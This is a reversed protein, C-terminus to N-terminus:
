SQVRGGEGSTDGEEPLKIGWRRLWSGNGGVKAKSEDKGLETPARLLGSGDQGDGAMSGGEEVEHGSPAAEPSREPKPSDGRVTQSDPSNPGQEGISDYRYGYLPAGLAVVRKGMEVIKEPDTHSQCKLPSIHRDRCEDCHFVYPDLCLFCPFLVPVTRRCYHCRPVVVRGEQIFNILSRWPENQEYNLLANWQVSLRLPIAIRTMRPILDPGFHNFRSPVEGNGCFCLCPSDHGQGKTDLYADDCAPVHEWTRCREAFAPLVNRWMQLQGADMDLFVVRKQHVDQLAQHLAPQDWERCDAAAGDHVVTGNGIDLRPAFISLLLEIPRQSGAMKTRLAFFTCPPIPEYLFVFASIFFITNEFAQSLHERFSMEDWQPHWGDLRDLYRISCMLTFFWINAGQADLVSRFIPLRDLVVRHLNVPFRDTGIRIIPYTLEPFSAAGGFSYCSSLKMRIVLVNKKPHLVCDAARQPVAYPFFVSTEIGGSLSVHFHFSSMWEVTINGPHEALKRAEPSILEVRAELTTSGKVSGPRAVISRSLHVDTSANPTEPSPWTRFLAGSPHSETVFVHAQDNLSTSWPPTVDSPRADSPIHYEWFDIGIPTTPPVSVLLPAPAIFTFIICKGTTKKSRILRPESTKAIQFDMTNRPGSWTVYGSEVTVARFYVNKGFGIAQTLDLFCCRGWDITRSDNRPRLSTKQPAESIPVALTVFLDHPIGRWPGVGGNRKTMAYPDNAVTFNTTDLGMIRAYSFAEELCFGDQRADSCKTILHFLRAMVQGFDVAVRRKALQLFRLFSVTHFSGALLYDRKGRKPKRPFMMKYTTFLISALERRGFRINPVATPLAIDVGQIAPKFTLVGTYWEGHDHREYLAPDTSALNTYEVALLGLLMCTTSFDGHLVHSIHLQAIDEGPNQLAAKRKNLSFRTRLASTPSPRLLPAAMILVSLLEYDPSLSTADIFDFGPGAGQAREPLLELNRCVFGPENFPWPILTINERALQFSAVWAHFEVQAQVIGPTSDASSKPVKLLPSNSDLTLFSTAFHFAELPNRTLTLFSTDLFAPNDLRNVSASHSDTIGEKFYSKLAATSWPPAPGYTATPSSRNTMHVLHTSWAAEWTEMDEQASLLEEMLHSPGSAELMAEWEQRLQALIAPRPMEIHMAYPGTLWTLLSSSHDCLKKVQHLLLAHAKSDIQLDHFIQWIEDQHKQRPDDLLLTYLLVNRALKSPYDSLTVRIRNTRALDDSYCTFLIRRIDAENLILINADQSRPLSQTLCTAPEQMFPSQFRYQEPIFMDLYSYM